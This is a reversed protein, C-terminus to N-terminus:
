NPGGKKGKRGKKGRRQSEAGGEANSRAALVARVRQADAKAGKTWDHDRGKSFSWLQACEDYLAVAAKGDSDEIQRARKELLIGLNTYAGAYGPDAEIATRFAKEAGDVDQRKDCLLAGLNCHTDADGPDAEIAARYAKEAGDVDRREGELLTGLNVYALACM